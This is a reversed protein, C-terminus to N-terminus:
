KKFRNGTNIYILTFAIVVIILGWGVWLLVMMDTWDSSALMMLCAALLLSKKGFFSLVAAEDCKAKDTKDVTNYGVVFSAGKGKLFLVGFTGLVIAFFMHVYGM